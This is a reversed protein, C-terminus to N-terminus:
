IIYYNFSKTKQYTNYRQIDKYQFKEIEIHRYRYTVSYFYPYNPLKINRRCNAIILKSIITIKIKIIKKM